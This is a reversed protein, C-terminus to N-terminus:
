MFARFLASLASFGRGGSKNNTDAHKKRSRSFTQIQGSVRQETVRSQAVPRIRDYVAPTRSQACFLLVLLFRFAYIWFCHPGFRRKVLCFLRRGPFFLRHRGLRIVSLFRILARITSLSLFVIIVPPSLPIPRATARAKARSPAVYQNRIQVFIGVSFFAGAPYFSRPLFATTTGPSIPCSSMAPLQHIASKRLEARYINQHIIRGKLHRM